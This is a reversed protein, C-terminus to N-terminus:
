SLKEMEVDHFAMYDKILYFERSEKKEIEQGNDDVYTRTIDYNIQDDTSSHFKIYKMNLVETKSKNTIKKKPLHVLALKNM